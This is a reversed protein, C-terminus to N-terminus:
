AAATTQKKLYAEVFPDIDIPTIGLNFLQNAVSDASDAEVKGIVADGRSNRGKYLFQPM